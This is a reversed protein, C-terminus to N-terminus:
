FVHAFRAYIQSNDDSRDLRKALSIRFDDGFYAAIGISHKLEIDRDISADNAIQAVDWLLSLALDTKPFDVRYEANAMWFRSGMLEKHKYGRLTGLGGMYFRKYMPLYGDSGGYMARLLLMIRRHVRQYRRVSVTYRRYDFDSGLDPTSWEIEGTVAWASQSYPSDMDRTDFDVRASLDANTATDLEAIGISRYAPDVRAFNAPFDKHSGFLSFLNRHAGLWATEEYRYRGLLELDQLPSVTVYVTGGEAEYYDKFDENVLLTFCINERDELLWDDQSALRRYYEGGISLPPRRLITQELGVAYRWRESAFAYGISAWVSPLLSDIDSHRLGVGLAAGDVRNYDFDGTFELEEERQWRRFRHKVRHKGTYIEGYISADRSADVRGTISVVDGRVVADPGIAVDGFLSIVDKNVEGYVKVRGAVSFVLGRIFEDEDVTVGNFPEVRNRYRIRSPRDVAATRAFFTVVTHDTSEEVRADYIEDYPLVEGALHLGDKDFIVRDGAVIRGDDERIEDLAFRDTFYRDAMPITIEANQKDFSIEFYEKGAQSRRYEKYQTEQAVACTSACVAALTLCALLRNRIRRTM